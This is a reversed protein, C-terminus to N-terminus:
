EKRLSITQGTPALFRLKNGDIVGLAVGYEGDILQYGRVIGYYRETHDFESGMGLKVKHFGSFQQGSIRIEIEFSSDDYRYTGDKSSPSSNQKSSSEENRSSQGCSAMLLSAFFIVVIFYLAKKM